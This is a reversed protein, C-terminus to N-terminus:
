RLGLSIGIQINKGMYKEVDYDQFVGRSNPAYIYNDDAFKHLHYRIFVGLSLRSNIHFNFGAGVGFLVGQFMKYEDPHGPGFYDRLFISSIGIAPALWLNARKFPLYFRMDVFGLFGQYMTGNYIEDDNSNAFAGVLNAGFSFYRNSKKSVSYMFGLGPLHNQRIEGNNYVTILSFEHSTDSSSLYDWFSSNDKELSQDDPHDNDLPPNGQVPAVLYILLLFSCFSFVKSM